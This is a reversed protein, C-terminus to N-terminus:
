AMADSNKERRRCVLGRLLDHATRLLWMLVEFLSIISMGTFLGM